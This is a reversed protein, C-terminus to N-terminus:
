FVHILTASLNAQSARYEAFCAMDTSKKVIAVLLIPHQKGKNPVPEVAPFFDHMCDIGFATALMELPQRGPSYIDRSEELIASEFQAGPGVCMQQIAVEILM